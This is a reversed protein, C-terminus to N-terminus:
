WMRLRLGESLSKVTIMTPSSSPNQIIQRITPGARKRRARIDQEAFFYAGPCRVGPSKNFAPPVSREMNRASRETAGSTAKALHWPRRGSQGAASRM